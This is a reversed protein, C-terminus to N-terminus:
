RVAPVVCLFGFPEEGLTFFQHVENGSIYVIDGANIVHEETGLLLRARGHVIYVGHDHAHQDLSTHGGPQVAFYRVHFHPSNEDNGIMVQRTANKATSNEPGYARVPVGQWRLEGNETDTSRHISSM